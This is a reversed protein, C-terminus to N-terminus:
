NLRWHWRGLGQSARAYSSNHEREGISSRSSARGHAVFGQSFESGIAQQDGGEVWRLLDVGAFGGDALAGVWGEM